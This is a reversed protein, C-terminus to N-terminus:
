EIMWELKNLNIGCSKLFIGWEIAENNLRCNEDWFNSDSFNIM